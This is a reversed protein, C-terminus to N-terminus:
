LVSSDAKNSSNNNNNNNSNNNNNNGALLDPVPLVANPDVQDNTGVGQARLHVQIYLNVEEPRSIFPFNGGTKLHAVKADPFFKYVEERLKPPTVVPDLVDIITVLNNSIRLSASRIYNDSCNLLLRSALEGQSFQELEEVMFDISEAIQKEQPETPLNKLIQRQLLILPTWKIMPICPAQEFFYHTDVFTNSLIISGIRNSRYQAFCLALYGGLASGFLHVKPTLKLADLFKEFAKVWDSVTWIAPYRVSILRYGRPCLTIFQRYFADATGTLGPILILPEVEKPGYDYYTWVGDCDVKQQAVTSRFTKFIPDTKKM